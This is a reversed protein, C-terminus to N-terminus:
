FLPFSMKNFSNFFLVESGKKINDQVKYFEALITEDSKATVVGVTQVWQENPSYVYVASGVFVREGKKISILCKLGEKKELANCHTVAGGFALNAYLSGILVALVINIKKLM